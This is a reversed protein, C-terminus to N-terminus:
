VLELALVIHQRELLAPVDEVYRARVFIRIIVVGRHVRGDVRLLEHVVWNDQLNPLDVAVSLASALPANKM